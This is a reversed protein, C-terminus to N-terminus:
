NEDGKFMAILAIIFIFISEVLGCFSAISVGILAVLWM